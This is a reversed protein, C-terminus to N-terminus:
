CSQNKYHTEFEKLQSSTESVAKDNQLFPRIVELVDETMENREAAEDTWTTSEIIGAIRMLELYSVGLSEALKNLIDPSPISIKGNEIQSIYPHSVGSLRSLERISFDRSVRVRKIYDGLDL